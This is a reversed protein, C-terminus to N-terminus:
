VDYRLDFLPPVQLSQDLVDYSEQITAHTALHVTMNSAAFSFVILVHDM